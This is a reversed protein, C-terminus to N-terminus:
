PVGWSNTVVAVRCCSSRQAVGQSHSEREVLPLRAAISNCDHQLQLWHM